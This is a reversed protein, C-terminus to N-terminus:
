SDTRRWKRSSNGDTDFERVFGLGIGKVEEDGGEPCLGRLDLRRHGPHRLAFAPRSATMRSSGRPRWSASCADFTARSPRSRASPSTPRIPSTATSPRAVHVEIVDTFVVSAVTGGNWASFSGDLAAFIFRALRRGPASAAGGNFVIGTPGRCRSRLRAQGRGHVAHILEDRQQSGVVARREKRWSEWGNKLLPDVVPAEDEENSVLIMVVYNFMRTPKGPQIKLREAAHAAGREAVGWPGRGTRAAGYLGGNRETSENSEFCWVALRHL